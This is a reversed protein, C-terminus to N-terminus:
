LKVVRERLGPINDSGQSHKSWFINNMISKLNNFLM